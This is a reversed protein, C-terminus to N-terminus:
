TEESPMVRTDGIGRQARASRYSDQRRNRLLPHIQPRRQRVVHERADETAERWAAEGRGAADALRPSTDDVVVAQQARIEQRERQAADEEVQM